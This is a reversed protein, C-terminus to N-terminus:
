SSTQLQQPHTNKKGQIPFSAMLSKSPMDGSTYYVFTKTKRYWGYLRSVHREKRKEVTAIRNEDAFAKVIGDFLTRIFEGEESFAKAVSAGTSLREVKEGTPESLSDDSPTHVATSSAARDISKSWIPLM